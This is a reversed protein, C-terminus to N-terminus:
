KPPAAPEAAPAAPAAPGAAAPAPPVPGLTPPPTLSTKLDTYLKQLQPQLTQIRSQGFKSLQANVDPMGTLLAAGAPSKYFAIIADLQEETFAKAYVDTFQPELAKWSIQEEVLHSAQKKFDDAKAKADSSADPGAAKDAADAIQKMLNDANQQIQKETHLLSMMEQAKTRRSAEDARAAVPFALALVLLLAIRHKHAAIPM